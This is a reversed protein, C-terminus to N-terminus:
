GRISFNDGGAVSGGGTGIGMGGGSGVSVSGAKLRHLKTMSM